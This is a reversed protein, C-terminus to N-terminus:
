VWDFHGLAAAFSSAVTPPAADIATIPLAMVLIVAFLESPKINSYYGNTPGKSCCDIL